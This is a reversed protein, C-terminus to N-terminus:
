NELNQRDVCQSFRSSSLWFSGRGKPFFDLHSPRWHLTWPRIVQHSIMVLWKLTLTFFFWGPTDDLQTEPKYGDVQKDLPLIDSSSACLLLYSVDWPEGLSQCSHKSFGIRPIWMLNSMHKPLSLVVRKKLYRKEKPISSPQVYKEVRHPTAGFCRVNKEVRLRQFDIDRGRCLKIGFFRPLSPTQKKKELFDAM